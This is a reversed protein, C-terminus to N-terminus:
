RCSGTEPDYAEQVHPLILWLPRRADVYGLEGPAEHNVLRSWQPHMLEIVGRGRDKLQAVPLSRHGFDGSLYGFGEAQFSKRQGLHGGAYGFEPTDPNQGISKITTTTDDQESEM